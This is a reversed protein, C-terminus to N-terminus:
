PGGMGTSQITLEKGDPTVGSYGWLGRAHNSMKPQELLVQALMLARGPDGVLIADTAIAATPRLRAPMGPGVRTGWARRRCRPSVSGASNAGATWLGRPCGDM